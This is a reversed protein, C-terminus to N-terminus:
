PQRNQSNLRSLHLPTRNNIKEIHLIDIPLVVARIARPTEIEVRGDVLSALGLRIVLNRANKLSALARVDRRPGPPHFAPAALGASNGALQATYTTHIYAYERAFLFFIYIFTHIYIYTCEYINYVCAYVSVRTYICMVRM